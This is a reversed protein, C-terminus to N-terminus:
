HFDLLISVIFFGDDDMEGYILIIDGQNFPLESDVDLNPSLERPDYDFLARMRKARADPPIHLNAGNIPSNYLNATTQLSFIFLINKTVM